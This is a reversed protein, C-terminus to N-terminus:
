VPLFYFSQYYRVCVFTLLFLKENGNTPIYILCKPPLVIQCQMEFNYMYVDKSGAIKIRLIYM